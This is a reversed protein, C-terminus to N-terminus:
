ASSPMRSRDRCEQQVARGIEEMFFGDGVSAGSGLKNSAYCNQTYGDAFTGALLLTGIISGLFQAVFYALCRKLSIKGVIALAISISCNLHAGSIHSLTFALVFLTFGFALSIGIEVTGPTEFKAGTSM